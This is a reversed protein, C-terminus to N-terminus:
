RLKGVLKSCSVTDNELWKRLLAADLTKTALLLAKDNHFFNPGLHELFVALIALINVGFIGNELSRRRCIAGCAKPASVRWSGTRL